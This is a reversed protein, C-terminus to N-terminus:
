RAIIRDGRRRQDARPDDAEGHSKEARWRSRTSSHMFTDARAIQGSQLPAFGDQAEDLIGLRTESQGFIRAKWDDHDSRTRAQRREATKQLLARGEFPAAMMDARGQQEETASM